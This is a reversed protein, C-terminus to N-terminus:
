MTWGDTEDLSSKPAVLQTENSIIELDSALDDCLLLKLLTEIVPYMGSSLVIVPLKNDKAWLVFDKFGPDLKINERLIELVRPFPMHWSDVM